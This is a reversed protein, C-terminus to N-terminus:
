KEVPLITLVFSESIVPLLREGSKMKIEENIYNENTSVM